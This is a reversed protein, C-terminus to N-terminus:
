NEPKFEIRKLFNLRYDSPSSSFNLSLYEGRAWKETLNDYFTSGPNGSQGGPYIGYAEPKNRMEVVMRWSAGHSSSTANLIDKNGGVNVGEMGFPAIRALHTISTNKFDAWKPEMEYKAIWNNISDATQALSEKVLADRNRFSTNPAFGLTSDEKLLLYSQLKAPRYYAADVKEGLGKWLNGLLFHQFVEFYSAEKSGVENFYNWNSLAVAINKAEGKQNAITASDLLLQVYEQAMLNYNDTQIRKNDEVTLREKEELLANLRRNRYDSTFPDYFYYPYEANHPHQNASSVYGRPPNKERPLHEYPIFNSWEFASQSGDMVYKGQNEWKIPYRGNVTLAIDGSKSAFVFNQAPCQYFSLAEVYDDYDKAKNLMLFTKQENSPDHATWRLAYNAKESESKYNKDYVVPGYHTTILTDFFSEEGKIKIEEIYKQTKLWKDDFAYESRSEDKFEIKYWDRVDRTANTVGWAISENFGSIVGLAGPLTVGMSQQGPSNLHIMFWISPFNLGLHPDNALIPHGDKTKLPSLAWNNSGNDPNSQAIISDKKISPFIVDPKTVKVPSFDWKKTKSIVPESYEKPYFDPYLLDFVEQGLAQVLNTNEFDKDTGTLNDAMYKLLLASKLPTWPEPEYGLLKFEIPYDKFTLSSIYANVGETYANVMEETYPDRMMEKLSAEAGIMMGQRRTNRDMDLTAPGVIESLRGSAARTIFDMQWLRYKGLVYGQAFYMDAENDAFIHPILHEDFYIEIEDKIATVIIRESELDTETEGNQWFGHTPSLLKGLAPYDQIPFNLALVFALALTSFLLFKFIRM